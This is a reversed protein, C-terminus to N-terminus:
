IETSQVNRNVVDIFTKLDPVTTFIPQDYEFITVTWNSDKTEDNAHTILDLGTNKGDSKKFEYTFYYFPDAGSEEESVEVKEFGMDYLDSEQIKSM